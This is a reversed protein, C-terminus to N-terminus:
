YAGLQSMPLLAHPLQSRSAKSGQHRSDALRVDDRDGQPLQYLPAQVIYTLFSHPLQKPAVTPTHVHNVLLHRGQHRSHALRVDDRDGQPLQYLPDQVIHTHSCSNPTEQQQPCQENGGQALTYPPGLCSAARPRALSHTTPQKLTGASLPFQVLHPHSAEAFHRGSSTKDRCAM